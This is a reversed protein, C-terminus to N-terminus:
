TREEFLDCVYNQMANSIIIRPMDPDCYNGNDNRYPHSCTCTCGVEDDGYRCMSCCQSVKHFNFAKEFDSESMIKKGDMDCNRIPEALVAKAKDLAKAMEEYGGNQTKLFNFMAYCADSLAERLKSSM